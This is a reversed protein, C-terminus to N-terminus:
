AILSRGRQIFWWASSFRRESFLCIKKIGAMSRTRSSKRQKISTKVRDALSRKTDVILHQEVSVRSFFAVVNLWLFIIRLKVRKKKIDAVSGTGDVVRTHRHTYSNVALLASSSLRCGPSTTLSAGAGRPLASGPHRHPVALPSDTNLWGCATCLEPIVIEDLNPSKPIRNYYYVFFLVQNM